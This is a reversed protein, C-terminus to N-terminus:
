AEDKARLEAEFEIREHSRDCFPKNRSAGCRCFAADGGSVQVLGDASRVVLPGRAKLPGAPRVTLQLVGDRSEEGPKVAGEFVEGDDSFGRTRHSGDCFPKNATGGCRCLAVRTDRVVQNRQGDVIEVRGRVLLPGDRQPTVTTTAAPQEAPGGDTREYHLAGTPCREIAQAIKPASAQDAKVWPRAGPQFVLPLARICEMSHICRSRDWIVRIGEGQFVHLKESV